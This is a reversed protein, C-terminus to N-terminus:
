DWEAGMSRLIELCQSEKTLSTLPFRFTLFIEELFQLWKMGFILSEANVREDSEMQVWKREWGM